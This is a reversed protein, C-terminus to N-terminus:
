RERMILRPISQGSSAATVTVAKLAARDICKGIVDNRSPVKMTQTAGPASTVLYVEDWLDYSASCKGVRVYTPAGTAVIEAELVLNLPLGSSLFKEVRPTFSM